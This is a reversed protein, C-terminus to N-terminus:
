RLTAPFTAHLASRRASFGRRVRVRERRLVHEARLDLRLEALAEAPHPLGRRQLRQALAMKDEDAGGAVNFLGGAGPLPVSGLGRRVKVVVALVIVLIILTPVLSIVVVSM